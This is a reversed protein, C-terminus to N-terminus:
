GLNGGLMGVMVVRGGDWEVVWSWERALKVGVLEDRGEVMDVARRVSDSGLCVRGRRVLGVGVCGLGDVGGYVSWM